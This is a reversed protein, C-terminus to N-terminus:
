KETNNKEGYMANLHGDLPGNLPGKSAFEKLQKESMNTKTEKGARQRALETGMFKRQKESTAPM